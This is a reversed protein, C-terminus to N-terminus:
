LTHLKRSKRVLVTGAGLAGLGLIMLQLVDGGTVPLGGSTSSSGRGSSGTGTGSGSTGAGTVRGSGAAAVSGPRGLDAGAVQPPPAGTYPDAQAPGSALLLLGAAATAGARFLFRAPHVLSLM